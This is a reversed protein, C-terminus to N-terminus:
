GAPRVSGPGGGVDGGPLTRRDVIVECRDPVANLASGGSILAANVTPRGVLPHSGDPLAEELRLLLRAMSTVANTGQEPQSGHAARGHATLTIWAGGREALALQLDTPEGVIAADQTLLGRELLSRRARRGRM